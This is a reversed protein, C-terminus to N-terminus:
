GGKIKNFAFAFAPAFYPRAPIRSTGVELWGGYGSETYVRGTIKKNEISAKYAISNANNGTDRPSLNKAEMAMTECLDNVNKQGVQVAQSIVEKTNSKIESM